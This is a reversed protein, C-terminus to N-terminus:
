QTELLKELDIKIRNKAQDESKFRTMNFSGLYYKLSKSEVIKKSDSSYVIQLIRSEPKGFINLWSFEYCNWIDYGSFYVKDIGISKRENERKIPFLFAPDYNEKVKIIKGLPNKRM